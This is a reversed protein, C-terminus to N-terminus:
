RMSLAVKWGAKWEQQEKTTTIVDVVRALIYVYQKHYGKLTRIWM